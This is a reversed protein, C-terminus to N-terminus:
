IGMNDLIDSMKEMMTANHRSSVAGQMTPRSRIPQMRPQPRAPPVVINDYMFRIQSFLRRSDPNQTLEELVGPRRLHEQLRMIKFAHDAESSRSQLYSTIAHKTRDLDHLFGTHEREDMANQQRQRQNEREAREYKALRAAHQPTIEKRQVAAKLDPFDSLLDVGPRDVNLRKCIMERQDELMELAIRLSSEDGQGVLRSYEINQALESPDVGVEDVFDRIHNIVGQNQRYRGEAENKASIIAKMRERGRESPISNIIAADEEQPTRPMRPEEPIKEAPKKDSEDKETIEDLYKMISDSFVPKDEDEFVPDDDDFDPAKSEIYGGEDNNDSDMFSVDCVSEDSTDVTNEEASEFTNSSEM